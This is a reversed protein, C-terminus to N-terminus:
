TGKTTECIVENTKPYKLHSFEPERLLEMLHMPHQFRDIEYLLRVNEEEVLKLEKQVSPIKLRLEMIENQQNIYAYVFAAAIMICLFVRCVVSLLNEEKM